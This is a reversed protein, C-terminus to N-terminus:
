SADELGKYLRCHPLLSACVHFSLFLSFINYELFDRVLGGVKFVSQIKPFREGELAVNTEKIKKQNENVSGKVRLRARWLTVIQRYKYYVLICAYLCFAELLSQLHLVATFFSTFATTNFIFFLLFPIFHSTLYAPSIPFSQLDFIVVSSFFFLLYSFTRSFINSCSECCMPKLLVSYCLYFFSIQM